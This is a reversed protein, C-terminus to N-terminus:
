VIYGGEKKSREKLAADILFSKKGFAQQLHKQTIDCSRSHTIIRRNLLICEDFHHFAQSINHHVIFLSKGSRTLKSFLQLLENETTTDIGQFPEDLFFIDAKQSLARAVFLRQQQGGSLASIHHHSYEELGVDLLAQLIRPKINGRSFFSTVALVGMEVFSFVDLPFNWDIESRQPIYAIKKRMAHWPKGDIQISGSQIPALGLCAKMFSSKGAGNPGLIGIMKGSCDVEISVDFLACHTEYQVTLNKVSLHSRKM